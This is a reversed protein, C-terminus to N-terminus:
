ANFHVTNDITTTPKIICLGEFKTGMEVPETQPQQFKGHLSLFKKQNNLTQDPKRIRTAFDDVLVRDEREIMIM